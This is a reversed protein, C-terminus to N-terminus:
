PVSVPPDIRMGAAQQPIVPRFVVQPLIESSPTQGSADPRSVTPGIARSTAPTAAPMASSSGPNLTALAEGCVTPTIVSSSASGSIVVAMSSASRVASNSTTGTVTGSRSWTM